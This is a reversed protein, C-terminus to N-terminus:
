QELIYNAREIPSRMIQYAENIFSSNSASVDQEDMGIGSGSGDEDVNVNGSLVRVKSNAYLDPHNQKQV